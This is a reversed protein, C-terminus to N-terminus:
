TNPKFSAIVQDFIKMSEDAIDEPASYELVYFGKNGKLIILRKFMPIKVPDVAYPPIFIFIKQDFQSAARGAITVTKVPGVKEGPLNMRERPDANLKLFKEASTFYGHDPGYYTITISSFGGAKNKPGKLNVGYEKAVEGSAISEYKVWSKPIKAMFYNKYCCFEVEEPNQPIIAKQADESIKVAENGAFSALVSEYEALGTEAAAMSSYYSLVYFGNKVPIVHFKEYIPIKKPSITEPPVFEFIRREFIKAYYKGVLGNEVPGYKEGDLAAGLVPRSHTAIFIEATKHLMNGPAYYRVSIKSVIGDADEPGLFEAGYVKKEEQSLGFAADAKYWGAPIKVTFYGDETYATAAEKAGAQASAGAPLILVTLALIKSINIFVTKLVALNNTRSM